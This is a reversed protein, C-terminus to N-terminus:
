EGRVPRTPPPPIAPLATIVLTTREYPASTVQLRYSGPQQLDLELPSTFTTPADRNIKLTIPPGAWTLTVLSPAHIPETPLGTPEWMTTMRLRKGTKAQLDLFAGRRAGDLSHRLALYEAQTIATLHGDQTARQRPVGPTTTTLSLIRNEEGILAWYTNM